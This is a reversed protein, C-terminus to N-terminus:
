WGTSADAFFLQVDRQRLPPPLLSLVSAHHQPARSCEYGTPKNLLLYVKSAAQWPGTRCKSRCLKM